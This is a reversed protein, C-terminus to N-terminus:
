RAAREAQAGDGASRQAGRRAPHIRVFLLTPASRVDTVPYLPTSTIPQPQLRFDERLEPGLIQEDWTGDLVVAQVDDTNLADRLSARLV